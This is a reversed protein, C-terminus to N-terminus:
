AEFESEGDGTSPSEEAAEGDVKYEARSERVALYDAFNLLEQRFPPELDLVIEILSDVLLKDSEVTQLKDLSEDVLGALRLVYIPSTKFAKAVSICFKVGPKKRGNLVNSVASSSLGAAQCLDVQRWNRQKMGEKLWEVFTIM